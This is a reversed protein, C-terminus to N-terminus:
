NFCCAIWCFRVSQIHSKQVISEYKHIIADLKINNVDIVIGNALLILQYRVGSFEDGANAHQYQLVLFNFDNTIKQIVTIVCAYTGGIVAITSADYSNVTLITMSLGALSSILINMTSLTKYWGWAALSNATHYLIKEECKFLYEGVVDQM